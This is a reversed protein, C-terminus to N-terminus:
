SVITFINNGVFGNLFGDIEFSKLLATKNDHNTQNVSAGASLLRKTCKVDGNTGAVILPTNGTDKAQTNVDAGATILHEVLECPGKEIATM